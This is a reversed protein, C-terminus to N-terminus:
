PRHSKYKELTAKTIHYNLQLRFRNNSRSASVIKQLIARQSDDGALAYGETDTGNHLLGSRSLSKMVETIQRSEKGLRRAFARPTEVASPNEGYYKLVEWKLYSTLHRQIFDLTEADLGRNVSSDSQTSGQDRRNPSRRSM